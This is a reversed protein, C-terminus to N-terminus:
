VLIKGGSPLMAVFKQSNTELLVSGWSEGDAIIILESEKSEKLEGEGRWRLKEGKGARESRGWWGERDETREWQWGQGEKERGRGSEQVIFGEKM